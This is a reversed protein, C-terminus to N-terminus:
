LKTREKPIAPTAVNLDITPESNSGRGFAFNRLRATEEARLHRVFQDSVIRKERRCAAWAFGCLRVFAGLVRPRSRIRRGLRAIEFLPHSGLSFDMLGSRYWRRLQGALSGAAGHHYVPLDPFSRVLWGNMRATVEACWDEGGNPLPLFGGLSEYCERRFMQVAGAVSRLNNDQRPSYKSGDWEYISGGAIGLDSDRAFRELLDAFYSPGFSVDGDLHGIFDLPMQRLREYGLNLARVKSGFDHQHHAELPLLEIPPWKRIYQRVIENTRDTSGDSVIIWASPLLTGSVVSCITREIHKEENYAATILGYSKGLVRPPLAATMM